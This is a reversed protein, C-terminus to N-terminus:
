KYTVSFYGETLNAKEEGTLEKAEFNFNGKVRKTATNHELITLTGAYAVLYTSASVNYQGYFEMEAPSFKYTGAKVDSPMVLGITKSGAQNNVTLSLTNMLNLGIVSYTPFDVGEVKVKFTDTSPTAQVPVTDYPINTFIGETIKKQKKDISRYVVMSFKGSVTKKEKDISTISLSGGSEAPSDGGITSYSNENDKTYVGGNRTSENDLSYTHLGSDAVNFLLTEGSNSIGTLLIAGYSFSAVTAKDATFKKGDINATFIGKAGGPLSPLTILSSDIDDLSFEKQCASNSFALISVFVIAFLYKM